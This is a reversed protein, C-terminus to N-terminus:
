AAENPDSIWTLLRMYREDCAGFHPRTAM